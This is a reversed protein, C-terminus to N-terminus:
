REQPVVPSVSYNGYMWRHREMPLEESSTHEPVPFTEGCVCLCHRGRLTQFGTILPPCRSTDLPWVSFSLFYPFSIRSQLDGGSPLSCLLAAPLLLHNSGKSVDTCAVTDSGGPKHRCCIGAVAATVTTVPRYLRSSNRHSFRCNLTVTSLHIEPLSSGFATSDTRSLVVNIWNDTLLM